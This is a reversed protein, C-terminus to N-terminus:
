LLVVSVASGVKLTKGVPVVVLCNGWAVSALVGSSQNPYLRVVTGDGHTELRARLYEQRKGPKPWDFAATAQIETLRLDSTLGQMRLLYPRAIVTFTVFVSSPNGPLGFFPKGAVRGYALPKGPKIALKWLQLEGLAEVAGKVHDEEGVSVGGTSLVVDAAEAAEALLRRTGAPDDPVIGMDVVTMGLDELMGALMYRNSNYIQGPALAQGPEVLENGTSLIAVRLKPLVPVRPLGISALLGLHAASLRTGAEMVRSGSAIDQGRPRVNDAHRVGDGFEVVGEDARADEQMVVTDAGPPLEAGTFIRVATGAQLPEGVAGAVVRQSLPFRRQGAAYDEFRLAYGDMSSNDAPPVAIESYVDSALIRHRCDALPLVEAGSIPQADALIRALAEEVPTLGQGPKSM